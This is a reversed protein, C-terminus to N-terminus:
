KEELANLAELLNLLNAITMGSGERGEQLLVTMKEKLLDKSYNVARVVAEYRRLKAKLEEIEEIKPLLNLATEAALLKSQLENTKENTYSELADAILDVNERLHDVSIWASGQLEESLKKAVKNASKMPFGQTQPYKYSSMSNSVRSKKVPCIKVEILEEGQCKMKDATRYIALPGQRGFIDPEFGKIEGKTFFAWARVCVPKKM